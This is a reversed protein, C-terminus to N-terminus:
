RAKEERNEDRKCPATKHRKVRSFRSELGLIRQVVDLRKHPYTIETKHVYRTKINSPSTKSQGNMQAEHKINVTEVYPSSAVCFM